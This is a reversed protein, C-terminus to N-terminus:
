KEKLKGVVYILLLLLTTLPLMYAMIYGAAPSSWEAIMFGVNILIYIIACGQLVWMWGSSAKQPELMTDAQSKMMDAMEEPKPKEKPPAEPNSGGWPDLKDETMDHEAERSGAKGM